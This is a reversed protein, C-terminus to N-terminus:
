GEPKHVLNQVCTESMRAVHGVWNVKNMEDDWCSKFLLAKIM